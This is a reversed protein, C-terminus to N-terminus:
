DLGRGQQLVAMVLGKMMTDDSESLENIVQAETTGCSVFANVFDDSAAKLDDRTTLDSRENVWLLLSTEVTQDSVAKAPCTFKDNAFSATRDRFAVREAILSARDAAPNSPGKSCAALTAALGIVGIAARIQM